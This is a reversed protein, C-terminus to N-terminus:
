MLSAVLYDILQDSRLLGKKLKVDVDCLIDFQKILDSAKKGALKQKIAYIQKNKLGTSEETLNQSFGVILMSRVKNYLVASLAVPEIGLEDTKGLLRKVADRDGSLIDDALEFISKDKSQPFQNREM